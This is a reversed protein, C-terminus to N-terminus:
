LVGPCHQSCAVTEAGAMEKVPHLVGLQVVVQLCKEHVADKTYELGTFCQLVQQQVVDFTHWFVLIDYRVGFRFPLNGQITEFCKVQRKSVSHIESVGKRM